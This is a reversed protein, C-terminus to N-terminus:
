HSTGGSGDGQDGGTNGASGSPAAAAITSKASSWLGSIGPGAQSLLGIVGLSLFGLLLTYEILDQGRCDRCLKSLYRRLM